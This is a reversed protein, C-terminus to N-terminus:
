KNVFVCRKVMKIALCRGSSNKKDKCRETHREKKRVRDKAIKKKKKPHRGTKDTKSVRDTEWVSMYIYPLDWMSHWIKKRCPAWIRPQRTKGTTLIVTTWRNRIDGADVATQTHLYIFRQVACSSRPRMQKANTQAKTSQAQTTPLFRSVGLKLGLTSSVM